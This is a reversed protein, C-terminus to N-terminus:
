MVASVEVKDDVDECEELKERLAEYEDDDLDPEEVMSPPPRDSAREDVEEMMHVPRSSTKKLSKM